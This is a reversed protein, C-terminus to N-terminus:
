KGLLKLASRFKQEFSMTDDLKKIAIIIEHNRFGMSQLAEMLQKTESPGEHSLDLDTMGGLKTKLEIIIKQANKKGLRPIDTFFDVNSDQVAKQVANVGRNMVLLATKPGIGSVTLLLEFLHLDEYTTFGFLELADDRVHTHIHLTQKQDVILSSLLKEPVSVLYGVGSVDVILPSTQNNRIIGTLLGIMSNKGEM